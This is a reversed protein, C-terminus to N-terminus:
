AHLIKLAEEHIRKDGAAIVHGDSALTLPKGNWDTIIGRASEIVPRLACFDHPKLGSEIVIDVMGSALKAYAYCDLGYMVERVQNGIHHFKTKDEDNFLDASTTSLTAMNLQGCARTTIRKENLTSAISKGGIWREKTIPQDIIGMIPIGMRVLSILTGFTATGAIFARTGDVPDLIWCYKAEPQYRGFEEGWIGHDPYHQIIMERMVREAERDAITVPSNDPKSEVAINQRFLPRIIEGARNALLQAFDIFEPLVSM